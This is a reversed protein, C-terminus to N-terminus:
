SCNFETFNLGNNRIDCQSISFKGLNLIGLYLIFKTNKTSMSFNFDSKFGGLDDQRLRGARISSADEFSSGETM